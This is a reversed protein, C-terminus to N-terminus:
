KNVIIFFYDYIRKGKLENEDEQENFALIRLLERTGRYDFNIDNIRYLM